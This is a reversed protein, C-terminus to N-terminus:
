SAVSELTEERPFHQDVLDLDLLYSTLKRNSVTHDKPHEPARGEKTRPYYALLNSAM